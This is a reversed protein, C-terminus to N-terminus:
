CIIRPRDDSIDGCIIGPRDDSYRGKSGNLRVVFRMAVISMSYIKVKTILM